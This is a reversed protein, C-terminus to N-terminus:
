GHYNSNMNKYFNLHHIHTIIALPRFRCFCFDFRQMFFQKNMHNVQQKNTLSNSFSSDFETEDDIPFKISNSHNSSTTSMTENVISRYQILDSSSFPKDGHTPIRVQLVNGLLPLLLTKGPEPEPWQRDM